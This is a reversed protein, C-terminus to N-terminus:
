IQHYNELNYVQFLVPTEKKFADKQILGMNKSCIYFKLRLTAM